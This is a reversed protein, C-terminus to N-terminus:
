EVLTLRPAAKVDKSPENLRDAFPISADDSEPQDPKAAEASNLWTQLENPLSDAFWHQKRSTTQTLCFISSYPVKCHYREGGFSLSASLFVPGIEINAFPFQHSFNLALVPQERLNDPVDVDPNRPDLHVLVKGKQLEQEVQIRKKRETLTPLRSM